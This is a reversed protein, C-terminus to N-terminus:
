GRHPSPARPGSVLCRVTVTVIGLILRHGVLVWWTMVVAVVGAASAGILFGLSAGLLLMLVSLM